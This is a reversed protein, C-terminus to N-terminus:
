LEDLGLEEDKKESRYIMFSGRAGSKRVYEEFEEPTLDKKQEKNELQEVYEDSKSTKKFNTKL